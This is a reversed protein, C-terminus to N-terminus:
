RFDDDRLSFPVCLRLSAAARDAPTYFLIEAKDLVAVAVGKVRGAALHEPAELERKKWLEPLKAQFTEDKWNGPKEPPDVYDRWDDRAEFEFGVCIM